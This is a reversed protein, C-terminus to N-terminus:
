SEEDDGEDLEDEAKFACKSTQPLGRKLWLTFVNDRHTQCDYAEHQSGGPNWRVDVRFRIDAKGREQPEDRIKAYQPENYERRYQDNKAEGSEQYVVFKCSIAGDLYM